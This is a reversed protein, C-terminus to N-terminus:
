RAAEGTPHRVECRQAISAGFGAIAKNQEVHMMMIAISAAWTSSPLLPAAARTRAKELVM